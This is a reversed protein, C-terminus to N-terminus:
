TVICLMEFQDNLVFYYYNTHIKQLKRSFFIIPCYKSNHKLIYYLLPKTYYVYSVSCTEHNQHGEASSETECRSVLKFKNQFLITWVLWLCKFVSLLSVNLVFMSFSIIIIITFIIICWM